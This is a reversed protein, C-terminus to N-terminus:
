KLNVSKHLLAKKRRIWVWYSLLGLGFYPVVLSFLSYVIPSHLYFGAFLFVLQLVVAVSLNISNYARDAVIDLVNRLLLYLSYIPFAFFVMQSFTTAKDLSPFFMDIAVPILFYFFVSLPISIAFGGLLYLNVKGVFINVPETKFLKGFYPLVLSGVLEYSMAGLKLLILTMSLYGSAELGIYLGTLFVPLFELSFLGIEGIVRPSGYRLLRFFKYQIRKISTDNKLRLYGIIGILLFITFIGYYIYYTFVDSVCYLTLTPILSMILISLWSMEAIKINGRYYASLLVFLGQSFVFLLLSIIITESSINSEEFVKLIASPFVTIFGVFIAYSAMFIAVGALLYEYSSNKADGKIFSIYRPIGIGAGVLLPFVFFSSIRKVLNFIAFGEVGWNNGVWHNIYLNSVM